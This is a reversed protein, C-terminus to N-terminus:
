PRRRRFRTLWEVFEENSLAEPIKRRVHRVAEAGGVRRVGCVILASVLGSRNRGQACMTVVRGGHEIFVCAAEVLAGLMERDPVPGDDIPWHVYSIAADLPLEPAPFEQLDIVIAPVINRARMKAFIRADTDSQWLAGKLIETIPM